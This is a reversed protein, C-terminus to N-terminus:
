VRDRAAAFEGSGWGRDGRDTTAKSRKDTRRRYHGSVAPNRNAFSVKAVNARESNLSDWLSCKMTRQSIGGDLPDGESRGGNDM